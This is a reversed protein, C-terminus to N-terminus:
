RLGVPSTQRLLPIPQRTKTMDSASPYENTIVTFLSLNPNADM